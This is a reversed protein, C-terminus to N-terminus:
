AAIRRGPLLAAATTVANPAPIRVRLSAHRALVHHALGGGGAVPDLRRGGINGFQALPLQARCRKEPEDAVTHAHSTARHDPNRQTQGAFSLLHEQVELDSETLVRDHAGRQDRAQLAPAKARRGAAAQERHEIARRRQLRRHQRQPRRGADLATQDVLLAIEVAVQAFTVVGFGSPQPSPQAPGLAFDAAAFREAMQPREQAGEVSGRRDAEILGAFREDGQALEIVGSRDVLAM